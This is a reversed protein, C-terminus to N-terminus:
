MGDGVRGSWWPLYAIDHAWKVPSSVSTCHPSPVGRSVWQDTLYPLVAVPDWIEKARCLESILLRM